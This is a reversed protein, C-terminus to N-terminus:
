DIIWLSYFDNADSTTNANTARLTITHAGDSLKSAFFQTPLTRHEQTQNSYLLATGLLAGDLLVDVGILTNSVSAWASGSFAITVPGDLPPNFPIDLPLPGTLNNAIVFSM